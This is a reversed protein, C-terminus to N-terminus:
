SKGPIIAFPCAAGAPNVLVGSDAKWADVKLVVNHNGDGKLKGITTAGRRYKIECRGHLAEGRGHLIGHYAHARAQSGVLYKRITARCNQCVGIRTIM